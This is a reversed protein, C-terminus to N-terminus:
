AWNVVKARLTIKATDAAASKISLTLVDAATYYKQVATAAIAATGTSADGFLTAAANGEAGALYVQAGDGDGVDITLTGGEATDVTIAVAEVFTGAPINLMQVIDNQAQNDTGCDLQRELISVRRGSDPYSIASLRNDFTAM